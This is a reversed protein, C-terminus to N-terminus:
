KIAIASQKKHRRYGGPPILGITNPLLFSSRFVVNCASAITTSQVLPDVGTEALFLDRFKMDARRLIDVDSECYADKEVRM